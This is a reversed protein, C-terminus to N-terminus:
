FPMADHAARVAERSGDWAVLVREGPARFAGTRPVFLVPRGASLVLNEEFQDDICTEPDDPDSQGAIVLDALRAHHPVVINPRADAHIWTSSVKARATEARFLREIAGLREARRQRQERFDDASGAMVYFADPTATHIAFVGTLHAEFRRALRLALELRTRARGSTDLHVVLSKYSM